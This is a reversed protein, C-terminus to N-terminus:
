SIVILKKPFYNDLIDKNEMTDEYGRKYLFYLNDDKNYKKINFCDSMKFGWMDHSIDFYTNISSHPFEKFGGDFFYTNDLKLLGKGTVFPIHSSAFCGEIAQNLTKIDSIIIQKFGTKTFITTAINIQNLNFDHNNYNNILLSKINCQLKYISNISEDEIDYNCLYDDKNNECSLNYSSLLDETIKNINKNYCMPICNWAGASAGLFCIDDTYYNDKIYNIVGLLYFGGLGGPSISVIKKNRYKYNFQDITLFTSKFCNVIHINFFLLLFLLKNM